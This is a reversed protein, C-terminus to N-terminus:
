VTGPEPDGHDGDAAPADDAADAAAGPLTRGFVSGGARAAADLSGTKLDREMADTREKRATNAADQAALYRALADDREAEAKLRGAKETDTLARATSLAGALETANSWAARESKGASIFERALWVIAAIAGALAIALTVVAVTM